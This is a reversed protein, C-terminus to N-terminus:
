FKEELIKRKAEEWEFQKREIRSSEARDRNLQKIEKDIKILKEFMTYIHPYRFTTTKISTDGEYRVLQQENKSQLWKQNLKALENTIKEEQRNYEIISDISYYEKIMGKLKTEDDDSIQDAESDDEVEKFSKNEYKRGDCYAKLFLNNLKEYEKYFYQFNTEDLETLDYIEPFPRMKIPHNEYENYNETWKSNIETFDKIISKRLDNCENSKKYVEFSNLETKKGLKLIEVQELLSDLKQFQSYFQQFQYETM